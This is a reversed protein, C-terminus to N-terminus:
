PWRGSTASTHSVSSGSDTYWLRTPPIIKEHGLQKLLHHLIETRERAFLLITNSLHHSRVEVARLIIKPQPRLSPVLSLAEGRHGVVGCTRLLFKRLM